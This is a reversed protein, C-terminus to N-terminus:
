RERSVSRGCASMAFALVIAMSGRHTAWALRWRCMLPGYGWSGGRVVHFMGSFPGKPDNTPSKAYWKEDLFDQSWEEVNGLMDFLGFPNPLKLAVPQSKGHAKRDYWGFQELDAPDDSFSYQTTTGARCAYEWEADTPLRYGSAEAAVLWGGRGDTRYWPIRQEQESLWVCYACADNWSIESVPSEDSQVYGPNPYTQIPKPPVPAPRATAPTTPRATKAAINAKEGDTHYGSATIFKKFQGLTVETACMLYPKTIVVRHQPEEANKIREKESATAKVQEAVKLEAEVEKETSGMQFEGPPILVMTMGDPNKQEVSTNLYKAWAEQGARAQKADFPAVLPKPAALTDATSGPSPTGITPPAPTNSNDIYKMLYAVFLPAVITGFVAGVIKLLSNKSKETAVIKTLNVLPKPLSPQSSLPEPVSDDSTQNPNAM